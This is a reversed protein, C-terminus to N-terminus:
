MRIDFEDLVTGDIAIAQFHATKGNVSVSVFNEVSVVKQTIEEPTTKEVRFAPARVVTDGNMRVTVTDSQVVWAITATQSTVGVIFPGGVIKSGAALAAGAILAVAAFAAVFLNRRRM